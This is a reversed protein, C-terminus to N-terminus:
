LLCQNQSRALIFPGVRAEALERQGRGRVEM